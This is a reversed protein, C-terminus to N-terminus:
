ELVTLATLRQWIAGKASSSACLSCPMGSSKRLFSSEKEGSLGPFAQHGCSNAIESPEPSILWLCHLFEEHVNMQNKQEAEAVSSPM